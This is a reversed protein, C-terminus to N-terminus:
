QRGTEPKLQLTIHIVEPDRTVIMPLECKGFVRLMPRNESLVEAFLAYLGRARAILTLHRLLAAGIGHGQYEDIVVFAVEAKGPQIAVYRGGAVVIGQGAEEMVAVLVVHKDFDVNLFFATEAETFHSKL